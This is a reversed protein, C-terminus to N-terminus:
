GLPHHAATDDGIAWDANAVPTPGGPPLPCSPLDLRGIRKSKLSFPPPGACRTSGTARAHVERGLAADIRPAPSRRCDRRRGPRPPGARARLRVELRPRAHPLHRDLDHRRREAAEVGLDDYRRERIPPLDGLWSASRSSALPPWPLAPAPAETVPGLTQSRTVSRRSGPPPRLATPPRVRDGAAASARSVLRRAPALPPGGVQQALVAAVAM